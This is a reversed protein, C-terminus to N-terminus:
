SLSMCDHRLSAHLVHCFTLSHNQDIITSLVDGLVRNHERDDKHDNYAYNLQDAGVGVIHEGRHAAGNLLWPQPELNTIPFDWEARESFHSIQFQRIANGALRYGQGKSHDKIETCLEQIREERQGYEWVDVNDLNALKDPTWVNLQQRYLRIIEECTQELHNMMSETKRSRESAKGAPVFFSFRTAAAITGSSMSSEGATKAWPLSTIM